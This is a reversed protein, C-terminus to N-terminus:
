DVSSKVAAGRRWHYYAPVGVALVILGVAANKPQTVMTNVVIGVASAVFLLPTIPYGPVSYPRATRGAKKRYVFVSAAGLGYFIWATFVVYTFLQEFKGIAAFLMGLATTAIIAVAPTQFRPHVEALRSFFLGDRAMAYFVRPMTLVTSHAASFMSIVITAAILKGAGTGLKARVADAAISTSHAAAAPGLAAIYAVNALMYIGVLIATGIVIGRPFTRQPDATEGASFTVWQWGEYAWLIGVMAVGAGAFVSPPAAIAGAPAPNTVGGLGSLAILVVSLVVIVGVKIVTSVNLLNASERTGIVNVAGLAAVILVAVVRAAIPSLPLLQSLYATSAVALTAITAPGIVFFLVWGYLFAPLPGFTDRIYIYIGGAQPQAAGMEAYTLAGLLSLIGGFLWVSLSAGISGTLRLTSAPIIFVGSGIVTGVTLFILDGVKLTRPLPM